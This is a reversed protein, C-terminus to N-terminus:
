SPEKELRLADIVWRLWTLTTNCRNLATAVVALGLTPSEMIVNEERKRNM